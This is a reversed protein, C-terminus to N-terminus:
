LLFDVKTGIFDCIVALHRRYYNTDSLDFNLFIENFHFSNQV